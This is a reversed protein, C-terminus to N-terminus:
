VIKTITAKYYNKFDSLKLELKNRQERLMDILM